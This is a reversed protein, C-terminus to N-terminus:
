SRDKPRDPLGPELVAASVCWIAYRVFRVGHSPDFRCVARMQGVHWEGMLYEQPLGNGRNADERYLM